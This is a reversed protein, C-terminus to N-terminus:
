AIIVLGEISDASSVHKARSFPGAGALAIVLGCDGPEEHRIHPYGREFVVYIDESNLKFNVYVASSCSIDAQVVSQMSRLVSWSAHFEPYSSKAQVYEYLSDDVMGGTDCDDPEVFTSDILDALTLLQESSLLSAPPTPTSAAARLATVLCELPISRLSYQSDFSDELIVAM